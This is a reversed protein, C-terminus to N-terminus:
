QRCNEIVPWTVLSPLSTRRIGVCRGQAVASNATQVMAATAIGCAWGVPGCAAAILATVLGSNTLQRTENRSYMVTCFQFNCELRAMITVPFTAPVDDLRQRVTNGAIEYSSRLDRGDADVAVPPALSNIASGNDDLIRVGGREDLELRAPRGDILVSFGFDVLEQETLVRIYQGDAGAEANGLGQRTRPSSSPGRPTEGSVFSVTHGQSQVAMVAEADDPQDAAFAGSGTGAISMTVLMLVVAISPATARNKGIM